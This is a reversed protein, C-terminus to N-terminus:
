FRPLPLCAEVARASPECAYNASHSHWWSKSSTSELSAPQAAAPYEQALITLSHKVPIHSTFVQPPAPCFPGLLVRYWERSVTRGKTSNSQSSCLLRLSRWFAKLIIRENDQDTADPKRTDLSIM